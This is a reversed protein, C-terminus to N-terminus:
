THTQEVYDNVLLVGLIYETNCVYSKGEVAVNGDSHTNEFGARDVNEKKYVNPSCLLIECDCGCVGCETKRMYQRGALVLREVQIMM